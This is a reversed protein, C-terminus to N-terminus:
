EPQQPQSRDGAIRDGIYRTVLVFSIVLLGAFLIRWGAQRPSVLGELIADALYTYIAVGPLTGLFTGIFYDRRRLHAFGSAYSIVAFPFIHMARLILVAMMGGSNIRRLIGGAKQDLWRKVSPVGSRAVFFPAATGVMTAVMVWFTGMGWGWVAGAALTLPTGPIGTLNIIVFAVVLAAPAWWHEGYSRLQEVMEVMDGRSVHARAYLALAVAAAVCVGAIILKRRSM